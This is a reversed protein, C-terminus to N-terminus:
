SHRHELGMSSRAVRLCSWVSFGCIVCRDGVAVCIRSINPIEIENCPCGDHGIKSGCIAVITNAGPRDTCPVNQWRIIKNNPPPKMPSLDCSRTLTLELWRRRFVPSAPIGNHDRTCQFLSERELLIRPLAM